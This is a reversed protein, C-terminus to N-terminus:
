RVGLAVGLGFLATGIIVDLQRQYRLMAARLSKSGFCWAVISFWVWHTASMFLGYGFQVAAPTHENVVQSYTSVVFLTTKPNLANTLFGMRFAALGSVAPAGDADVDLAKRNRLTQIGIWILYAAGALKIISLLGHAHRVLLSVGFMTYAVHVQVGLAIGLACLLGTRRGFLYSNRTVMAFDPGPSIVALLTIAAVALLEALPTM